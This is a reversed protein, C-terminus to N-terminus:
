VVPSTFPSKWERIMGAELLDQIAARFEELQGQPVKRYPGREREVNTGVVLLVRRNYQMDPVVLVLTIYSNEVGSEEKPLRLEVESTDM